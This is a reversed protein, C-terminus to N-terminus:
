FIQRYCGTIVQCGRKYPNAKTKTYCNYYSAGRQDCPVMNAKMAAYSIYRPKRVALIRRNAESDMMVEEEENISDGVVTDTRNPTAIIAECTASKAVMAIAMLILISWFRLAM